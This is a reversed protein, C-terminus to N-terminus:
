QAHSSGATAAIRPHLKWFLRQGGHRFSRGHVDRLPVPECCDTTEWHVPDVRVATHVHSCAPMTPIMHSDPPARRAPLVHRRSLVRPPLAAPPVPAKKSRLVSAPLQSVTAILPMLCHPVSVNKRNDRNYVQHLGACARNTPTHQMCPNVHEGTDSRPIACSAFLKGRWSWPCCIVMPGCFKLVAVVTCTLLKSLFAPDEPQVLTLPGQVTCLGM